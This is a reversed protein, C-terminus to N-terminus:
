VCCTQVNSCKRDDCVCQTKLRSGGEFPHKTMRAYHCYVIKFRSGAAKNKMKKKQIRADAKGDNCTRM